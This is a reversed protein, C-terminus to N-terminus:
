NSNGNENPAQETFCFIGHAVFPWRRADCVSETESDNSDRGHHYQDTRCYPMAMRNVAEMAEAASDLKARVFTDMQQRPGTPRSNAKRKNRKRGGTKTGRKRLKSDDGESELDSPQYNFKSDVDSASDDKYDDLHRVKVISGQKIGHKAIPSDLNKLEKGDCFFTFGVDDFTDPTQDLFHTVLKRFSTEPRARFTIELNSAKWQVEFEFKPTKKASGTTDEELKTTHPTLAPTMQTEDEIEEKEESIGM